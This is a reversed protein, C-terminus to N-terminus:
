LGVSHPCANQCSYLNLSALVAEDFSQPLILSFHGYVKLEGM